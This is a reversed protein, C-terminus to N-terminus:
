AVNPCVAASSLLGTAGRFVFPVVKDIYQWMGLKKTVPDVLEQWPERAAITDWSRSKAGLVCRDFQVLPRALNELPRQGRLL